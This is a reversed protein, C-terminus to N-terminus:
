GMSGRVTRNLMALDNHIVADFRGLENVRGAIAKAGAVPMCSLWDLQMM